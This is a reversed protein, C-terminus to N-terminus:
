NSARFQGASPVASFSHKPLLGSALIADASVTGTILAIRITARTTLLLKLNGAYGL